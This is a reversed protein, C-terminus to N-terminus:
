VVPMDSYWKVPVHVYTLDHGTLMQNYYKCLQTM